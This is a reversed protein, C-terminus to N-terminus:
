DLVRRGVRDRSVPLQQMGGGWGMGGIESM